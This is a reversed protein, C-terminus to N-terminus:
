LSGVCIRCHTWGTRAVRPIHGRTLPEVPRAIFACAMGLVWATWPDPPRGTQSGRLVGIPARGPAARGPQPLFPTATLLLTAGPARIDTMLLERLPADWSTRM